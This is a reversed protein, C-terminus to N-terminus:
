SRESGPALGAAYEHLTGSQFATQVQALADWNPVVISQGDASTATGLTPSTFYNIDSGRLDKLGLGLNVAIPLTFGEDVILYPKLSGVTDTIRQPSTLTDKSLIAQVLGKMYAQQNRVRQYDGDIFEYRERVFDLADNGNELFIEGQAFSRGSHSSTFAKDNYVTVGGVAHTLGKFSQFDVVMVHDIQTGIFNEITNVALPIGGYSFAANIKAEGVGQIEVWNDRMISMITINKRDASIQAVMIADSRFGTSSTTENRNDSGLLLVNVPAIEGKPTEIKAPRKLSPDAKISVTEIENFWNQVMSFAIGATIALVSVVCAAVILSVRLRKRKLNPQQASTTADVNLTPENTM